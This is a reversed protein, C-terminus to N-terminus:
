IYRNINTRKLVSGVHHDAGHCGPGILVVTQCSCCGETQESLFFGADIQRKRKTTTATLEGQCSEGQAWDRTLVRGASPKSM